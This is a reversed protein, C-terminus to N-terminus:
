MAATRRLPAHGGDRGAKPLRPAAQGATMGGATMGGATMGGATMGNHLLSMM